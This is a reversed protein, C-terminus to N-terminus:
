GSNGVRSAHVNAFSKKTKAHCTLEWQFRCFCSHLFKTTRPAPFSLHFSGRYICSTTEKLPVGQNMGENGASCWFSLLSSSSCISPERNGGMNTEARGCGGPYTWESRQRSHVASTGRTHRAAASSNSRLEHPPIRM